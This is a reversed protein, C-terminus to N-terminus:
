CLKDVEKAWAKLEGSNEIVVDALQLKKELPWQAEIRNRAEKDTLGDRQKLRKYQQSTTCNVVWIESCLETFRAEFLLPIILAIAPECKNANLEKQFRMQVVPHILQEIWCREKTNNFIITGLVSRNITLQQNKSPGKVVNGYREVVAITSAEGPALAEYAYVDADLVPLGKIEKLFTGISSKGSAIGGTIGIRRQTGGYRKPSPQNHFEGSM